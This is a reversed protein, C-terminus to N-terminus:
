VAETYNKLLHDNRKWQLFSRTMTMTDRARKREGWNQQATM